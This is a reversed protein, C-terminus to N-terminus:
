FANTYLYNSQTPIHAFISIEIKLLGNALYLCIFGTVDVKRFDSLATGTMLM